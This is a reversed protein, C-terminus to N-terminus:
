RRGAPPAMAAFFEAKELGGNGNADLVSFNEKLRGLREGRLEEQQIMRDLNDDLVSFSISRTIERQVDDKPQELSEGVIKYHLYTFLMEDFTQEGFYVDKDPSLAAYNNKSNDFIYDAILMSGAPIELWDDFVYERQWNFDYIPQNHLIEERGDPYRVTLRTAYGLSHAHPRVRYLLVDAPFEVYGREHHLPAGAPIKISFDAIGLQRLINEPPDDRFYLGVKTKDTQAVGNPTYHMQFIYEGGSGVMNGTDEPYTTPESGPGWGGTDVDWGQGMTHKGDPNWGAVIHHVVPAAGPLYAVAELFKPEDVPNKVVLNQYDVIGSAPVDFSPLELVEDPEGYPWEPAVYDLSALPDPGEGREAGADIWNILKLTQDDTLRMDVKLDHSNRGAHFPPMTKAMIVERIMPAFGKVVEFRDMAFPAVGNEAHCVVCKSELIPAIDDAYSPKPADSSAPFLPAGSTEAVAVPVAGGSLIADLAVGVSAGRAGRGANSADVPGRYAVTWNRTEIVFVEGAKAAGLSRSVLQQHDDLVPIGESPKLVGVQQRASSGTPDIAYFAVGQGEYSERLGELTALVDESAEDGPKHTLLVVAPNTRHYKLRHGIGQQDVLMFDDVRAGEGTVPAGNAAGFGVVAAGLVVIAAGAGLMRSRNGM